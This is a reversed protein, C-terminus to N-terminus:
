YHGQGTLRHRDWSIQHGPDCHGKQVARIIFVDGVHSYRSVGCDEQVLGEVKGM